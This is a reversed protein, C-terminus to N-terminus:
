EDARRMFSDQEFFEDGARPATQQRSEDRQRTDAELKAKLAPAENLERAFEATDFELYNAAAIDGDTDQTRPKAAQAHAVDAGRPDCPEQPLVRHLRLDIVVPASVTLCQVAVVQGAQGLEDHVCCPDLGVPQRRRRRWPERQERARSGDEEEQQGPPRAVAKTVKVSAPGHTRSTLRAAANSVSSVTKTSNSRSYPVRAHHLDTGGQHAEKTLRGDSVCGDRNHSTCM